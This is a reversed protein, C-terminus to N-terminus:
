ILSYPMALSMHQQLRNQIKKMNCLFICKRIKLYYRKKEQRQKRKGLLVMKIYQKTTNSSHVNRPLRSVKRYKITTKQKNVWHCLDTTLHTGFLRSSSKPFQPGVLHGKEGHEGQLWPFQPKKQKKEAMQQEPQPNEHCSSRTTVTREKKKKKM